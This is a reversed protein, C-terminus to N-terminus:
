PLLREPPDDFREVSRLVQGEPSLLVIKYDHMIHDGAQWVKVGLRQALSRTAARDGWLFHWNARQLHRTRRLEAWDDPKDETPDIGIVVFDVSVGREDALRQIQEMSRFSTSCIRRCAGYALTLVSHRGRLASMQWPRGQDDLWASGTSYLDQAVARASSAGLLSAAILLCQRRQHFKRAAM